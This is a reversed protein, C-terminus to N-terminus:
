SVDRFLLRLSVRESGNSEGMLKDFFAYTDKPVLSPDFTSPPLNQWPMPIQHITKGVRRGDKSSQQVLVPLVEGTGFEGVDIKVVNPARKRKGM